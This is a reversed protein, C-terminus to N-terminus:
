ERSLSGTGMTYSAPHAGPRSQVLTSFRAGGGGPNSRRVTWGTAKGNGKGICYSNGWLVKLFQYSYAGSAKANFFVTCRAGLINIHKTCSDVNLSIIGRINTFSPHTSQATYFSYEFVKEIIAHTLVNFLFYYRETQCQCM